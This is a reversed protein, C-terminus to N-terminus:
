GRVLKTTRLKWLTEAGGTSVTLSPAAAVKFVLVRGLKAKFNRVNGCVLPVRPTNRNHEYLLLHEVNAIRRREYDAVSAVCQLFRRVLGRNAILTNISHVGSNSFDYPPTTIIFKVM